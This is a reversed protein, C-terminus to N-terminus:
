HHQETTPTKQTPAASDKAPNITIGQLFEILASGVQEDAWKWNQGDESTLTVHGQFTQASSRETKAAETFQYKFHVAIERGERIIEAYNQLFVVDEVEPKKNKIYQTITEEVKEELLHTDQTRGSTDEATLKWTACLALLLIVVSFYKM